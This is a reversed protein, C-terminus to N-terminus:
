GLLGIGNESVPYEDAGADPQHDSRLAPGIV